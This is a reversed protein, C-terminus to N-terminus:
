IVQPNPYKRKVNPINIGQWPALENVKDVLIKGPRRFTIFEIGYIIMEEEEDM